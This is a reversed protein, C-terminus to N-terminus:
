IKKRHTVIRLFTLKKEIDVELFCVSQIVFLSLRFKTKFMNPVSSPM